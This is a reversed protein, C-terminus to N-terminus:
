HQLFNLFGPGIKASVARPLSKKDCKFILKSKNLKKNTLTESFLDNLFIEFIKDNCFLWM